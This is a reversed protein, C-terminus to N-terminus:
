LRRFRRRMEDLLEAVLDAKAAIPDIEVGLAVNCEPCAYVVGQWQHQDGRVPVQEANVATLAHGCKHCNAM